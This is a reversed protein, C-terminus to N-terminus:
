YYFSGSAYFRKIHKIIDEPEFDNLDFCVSRVTNGVTVGKIDRQGWVRKELWTELSDFQDTTPLRKTLIIYPYGDGTGCKICNFLTAFESGDDFLDPDFNADKIVNDALWYWVDLHMYDMNLFTGDKTIFLPGEGPEASGFHNYAAKEITNLDLNSIIDMNSLEEYLRMFETKFNTM